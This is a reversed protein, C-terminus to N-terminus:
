SAPNATAKAMIAAWALTDTEYGANDIGAVDVLKTGDELAVFYRARAGAGEKAVVYKGAPAEPDGPPKTEIVQGGALTHVAPDYDSKNIRVEGKATVINVTECEEEFAM